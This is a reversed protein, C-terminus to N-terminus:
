THPGALRDGTSLPATNSGGIAIGRKGAASVKGQGAEQGAEQGPAPAPSTPPAPDGTTARAVSGAGSTDGTSIRGRNDGGVAVSREGVAQVSTDAPPDGEQGDTAFGHSWLAALAALAVGLSSAVGWRTGPDKLLPPLVVAGALWAPVAFAAATVSVAVM